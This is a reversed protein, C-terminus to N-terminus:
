NPQLGFKLLMQDTDGDSLGMGIIASRLATPNTVTAAGTYSDKAVYMSSLDNFSKSLDPKGVEGIQKSKLINDPNTPDKSWAL